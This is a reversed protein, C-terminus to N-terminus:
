KQRPRLDQPVRRSLANAHPVNWELTKRPPEFWHLMKAQEAWFAEPENKARDYIKRYEDLSRMRTRCMGNSLKGPRSSGTCCKPRNQGSPKRSMKPATTFRATSTSLACARAACEM